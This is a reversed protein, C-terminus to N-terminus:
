VDVPIYHELERSHPHLHKVKYVNYEEKGEGMSRVKFKLPRIEIESSHNDYFLYVVSIRSNFPEKRNKLGIITEYLVKERNKYSSIIKSENSDNSHVYYNDPNFRVVCVQQSGIDEYIRILRKIEASIGCTYKSHQNEDCEVILDFFPNFDRYFWDPRLKSCGNQVRTDKSTPLGIKDQMSTLLEDIKSEKPKRTVQKQLWGLCEFCKTSSSHIFKPIYCMECEREIMNEDKDLKHDECRAPIEDTKADGFVPRNPCKKPNDPDSGKCKPNNKPKPFENPQKHVVCHIPTEFLKGYTAITHINEEACSVCTKNILDVMGILRHKSCSVIKKDSLFGFSPRKQTGNEKCMECVNQRNVLCFMEKTKHLVCKTPIKDTSNGYCAIKFIEEELCRDCNRTRNALNIMTSTKHSTCRIRKKNNLFGFIAQKILGQENCIECINQQNKLYIMTELKHKSCRTPINNHIFGFTAQRFINETQCIECGKKRNIVDIMEDTKHIACMTAIKNVGFTALKFLGEKNCTECGKKRNVLDIMEATKHTACRIRKKDLLFGFSAQKFLGQELCLECGHKRNVLDVMQDTKHTWCRIYKKDSLLGYAAHRKVGETKCLQCFPM